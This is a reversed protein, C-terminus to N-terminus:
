LKRGEGRLLPTPPSTYTYEVKIDRTNESDTKELTIIIDPKYYKELIQPWEIICIANSDLVEEWGIAFFEEYNWLRYLDFHYVNDLYKNYYTYTPSTINETVWLVNKLISQTLTTKGAWLDWYLFILRSESFDLELSSIKELSYIM